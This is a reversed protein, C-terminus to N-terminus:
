PAVAIDRLPPTVSGVPGSLTVAGTTINVTGFQSQLGGLATVSVYLTGTKSFDLGVFDNTNFGMNGVTFLQGSAVATPSGNVSGQTVTSDMNSDVEYLTTATPLPVKNSYACAVMKPNSGSHVDGVAYVLSADASTISADNPNVFLNENTDSIVRIRDVLPNFDMSVMVGTIAPSIAGVMATAGTNKDISYLNSQNTIGYLVGTLPRFAFTVFWEGLALGAVDTSRTVTGPTLSNFVHFARGSQDLGYVTDGLNGVGGGGCGTIVAAFSGAVLLALSIFLKNIRM